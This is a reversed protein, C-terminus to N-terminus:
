DSTWGALFDCVKPRMEYSWDKLLVPKFNGKIPRSEALDKSVTGKGTLYNIDCDGQMTDVTEDSTRNGWDWSRSYGGVM